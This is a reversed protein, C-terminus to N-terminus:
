NSNFYSTLLLLSILFNIIFNFREETQIKIRKNFLLHQIGLIRFIMM